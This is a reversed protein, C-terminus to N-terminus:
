LARVIFLHPSIDNLMASQRLILEQASNVKTVGYTVDDNLWM